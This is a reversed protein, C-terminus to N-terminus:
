GLLQDHHQQDCWASFHLSLRSGWSDANSVPIAQRREHALEASTSPLAIWAEVGRASECRKPV